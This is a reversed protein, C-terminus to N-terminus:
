QLSDEDIRRRSQMPRGRHRRRCGWRWSSRRWVPCCTWTSWEAWRPQYLATPSTKQQSGSLGAKSIRRSHNTETKKGFNQLWHEVDLGSDEWTRSETCVVQRVAYSIRYERKNSASRWAVCAIELRRSTKGRFAVIIALLNHARDYRRVM